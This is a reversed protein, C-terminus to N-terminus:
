QTNGQKDTYKRQIQIITMLSQTPIINIMKTQRGAFAQSVVFMVKPRQIRIHESYFCFFISPTFQMTECSLLSWIRLVNAYIKYDVQIPYYTYM